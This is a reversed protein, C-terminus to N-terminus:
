CRSALGKSFGEEVALRGGGLAGGGFGGGGGGLPRQGVEVPPPDRRFALLRGVRSQRWVTLGQQPVRTSLVSGQHTGGGAGGQALVRNDLCWLGDGVTPKM